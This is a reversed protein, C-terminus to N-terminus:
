KYDEINMKSTFDSIDKLFKDGVTTDATFLGSIIAIAKHKSADDAEWDLDILDKIAKISKDEEADEKILHKITSKYRKM